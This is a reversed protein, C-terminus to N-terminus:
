QDQGEWYKQTEADTWVLNGNVYISAINERDSMKSVYKRPSKVKDYVLNRGNKLIVKVSSGGPILSLRNTRFEDGVKM